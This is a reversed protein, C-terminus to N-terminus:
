GRPFLGPVWQISPQIPGLAPRSSKSFIFYKVRGPSSSRVGRDDLGYGTAIGVASDRSRTYTRWKIHPGVLKPYSRTKPFYFLFLPRLLTTPEQFETHFHAAEALATNRYLTSCNCPLKHFRYSTNPKIAIVQSCDSSWSKRLSGVSYTDEEGWRLVCVSGTESINHKRTELIGSSLCLGLVCYNQTIYVM